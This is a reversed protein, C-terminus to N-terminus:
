PDFPKMRGTRVWGLDERLFSPSHSTEWNYGTQYAKVNFIITRKTINKTGSQGM